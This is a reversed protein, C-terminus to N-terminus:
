FCVQKTSKSKKKSAQKGRKGAATVRKEPPVQSDGAAAKKLVRAEKNNQARSSKMKHLVTLDAM